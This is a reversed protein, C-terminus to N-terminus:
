ASFGLSQGQGKVAREPFFSNKILSVCYGECLQQLGSPDIKEQYNISLGSFGSMHFLLKFFWM